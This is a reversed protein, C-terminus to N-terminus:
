EPQDRNSLCLPHMRLEEEEVCEGGTGAAGALTRFYNSLGVVRGSWRGEGGLEALGTSFLHSAALQTLEVVGHAAIIEQLRLGVLKNRGIKMVARRSNDAASDVGDAMASSSLVGAGTVQGTTSYAALTSVAWNM